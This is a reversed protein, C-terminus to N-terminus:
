VITKAFTRGVHVVNMSNSIHKIYCLRPKSSLLSVGLLVIMTRRSTGPMGQLLRLVIITDTPTESSLLLGLSRHCSAYLYNSLQKITLQTSLLVAKLRMCSDLTSRQLTSHYLREWASCYPTQVYSCSYVLV